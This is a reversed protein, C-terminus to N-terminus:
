IKTRLSRQLGCLMKGVEAAQALVDEIQQATCYKLKEALLLQTELEALSRAAISIHHLYEKISERKNGEAVNSPVSVAARRMQSTLGYLEHKPFDATLQYVVVAVEMALQWVKLQRYSRVVENGDV